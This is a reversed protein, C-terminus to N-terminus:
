AFEHFIINLYFIGCNQWKPSGTHASSNPLVISYEVEISYEMLKGINWVVSLVGFTSYSGPYYSCGGWIPQWPYRYWHVHPGSMAPSIGVYCPLVPGYGSKTFLVQFIGHIQRIGFSVWFLLHQIVEPIAPAAVGYQSGCINTGTCMHGLCPLHYTWTALSFIVM